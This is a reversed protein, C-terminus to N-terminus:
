NEPQLRNQLYHLNNLWVMADQHIQETAQTIENHLDKLIQRIQPPLDPNFHEDAINQLMNLAEVIHIDIIHSRTFHIDALLEDIVHTPEVDIDITSESAADTHQTDPVPAINESM